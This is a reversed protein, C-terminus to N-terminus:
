RTSSRTPALWLRRLGGRESWRLLGVEDAAIVTGYGDVGMKERTRFPIPTRTEVARTGQVRFSREDLLAYTIRGNSLVTPSDNHTPIDSRVTAIERGHRLAVLKATNGESWSKDQMIEYTWASVGPRPFAVRSDRWRGGRVDGLYHHLRHADPDIGPEQGDVVAHYDTAWIRGDATVEFTDVAHPPTAYKWTAGDDSSIALLPEPTRSVVIWDGATSVALAHQENESRLMGLDRWVISTGGARAVGLAHDSRVVVVRSRSVAAAAIDPWVEYRAFSAGGDWSAGLEGPTWAAIACGSPNIAILVEDPSWSSQHYESPEGVTTVDDLCRTGIV